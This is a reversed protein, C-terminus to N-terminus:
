EAGAPEGARRGARHRQVACALQWASFAPVLAWLAVFWGSVHGGRYSWAMVSFGTLGMLFNWPSVAPRFRKIM